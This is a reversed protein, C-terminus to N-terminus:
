FLLSSFHKNLNLGVAESGGALECDLGLSLSLLFTWRLIQSLDLSLLHFQTWYTCTGTTTVSKQGASANTLTANVNRNFMPKSQNIIKGPNDGGPGAANNVNLKVPQQNVQLNSTMMRSKTKPSSSHEGLNQSYSPILQFNRITSLWLKPFDILISFKWSCRPDAVPISLKTLYIFAEYAYKRRMRDMDDNGDDDTGEFADGSDM